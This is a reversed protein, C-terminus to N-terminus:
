AITALAYIDFTQSIVPTSTGTRRVYVTGQMRTSNVTSGADSNAHVLTGYTPTTGLSTWSSTYPMGQTLPITIDQVVVFHYDPTATGTVTISTVVVQTEYDSGTVGSPAWSTPGTDTVATDNGGTSTTGNSNLKFFADSQADIPDTSSYSVTFAINPSFAFAIYVLRWTGADNVKINQITRWTAGDKVSIVTPTRWTAGDKISIPM